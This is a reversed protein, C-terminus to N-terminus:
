VVYVSFWKIVMPGGSDAALGTLFHFKRATLASFASGTNNKKNITVGCPYCVICIHVYVFIYLTKKLMLDPSLANMRNLRSIRFRFPFFSGIKDAIKAAVIRRQREHLTCICRRFATPTLLEHFYNM